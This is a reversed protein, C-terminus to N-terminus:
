DSPSPKASRKKYYDILERETKFIKEAPYCIQIGYEDPHKVTYEEEFITPDKLGYGSIDEIRVYIKSITTRLVEGCCKIVVPDGLNFKTKIDM